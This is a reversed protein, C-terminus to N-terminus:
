RESLNKQVSFERKPEQHGIATEPYSDSVASEFEGDGAPRNLNLASGCVLIRM